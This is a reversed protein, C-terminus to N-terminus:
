EPTSTTEIRRARERLAAASKGDGLKEALLSFHALADRHKPELYLAKRYFVAAEELRDSADSVLALLYYADATAGETALHHHCIAAVEEFRGEDALRTADTLTQQAGAAGNKPAHHPAGEASVARRSVPSSPLAASPKSKQARDAGRPAPKPAADPKPQGKHFAFALSHGAATFEHRLMLGSEAPAVCLLGEPALLRRLTKLARLQMEADFYILLNRCFIGHYVDIGQLTVEDLINAQRFSVVRRVAVSLEWGDSNRKFHRDRFDLDSGRFSNRGYIARSAHEIVRSSVDVAEIHFRDAPFGADLLAMALSFPEEGTACPLCLYRLRQAPDTKRAQAVTAAFAGPDRFFWTEPVIVAEILARLEEPSERLHQCYQPLGFLKRAGIRQQVAREIASLGISAADLGITERLLNIITDMM